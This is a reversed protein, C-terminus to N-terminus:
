VVNNVVCMKCFAWDGVGVIARGLMLKAKELCVSPKNCINPEGRYVYLYQTKLDIKIVVEGIRGVLARTEREHSDIKNQIVSVTGDKKNVESVIGRINSREVIMGPIIEDWTKIWDEQFRKDFPKGVRPLLLYEKDERVAETKKTADEDEVPSVTVVCPVQVVKAWHVLDSSINGKVHFKKEGVRALARQVVIPAPYTVTGPFSMLTVINRSLNFYVKEKKIYRTGFLTDLAYHVLTIYGEDYAKTQKPHVGVVVADHPLWWYFYTICDGPKVDSYSYVRRDKEKYVISEAMHSSRNYLIHYRREGIKERARRVIAEPSFKYVPHIRVILIDEKNLDFTFVEESVVQSKGYHVVSMVVQSPKAGARVDTCVAQHPLLRYTFQVLQGSKIDDRIKANERCIEKSAFPRKRRHDIYLPSLDFDESEPDMPRKYILEGKPQGTTAVDEENVDKLKAWHCFHASRHTLGFKTEGIRKQARDVVIEPENFDYGTYDHLKLKDQNLDISLTEEVIKRRSFIGPLAYHIVKLDAKKINRKPGNPDTKIGSVIGDHFFGRYKWSVVDGIWIKHLSDVEVKRGVFPSCVKRFWRPMYKMLLMTLLSIFTAFLVQIGPVPILKTLLLGGTQIVLLIGFKIWIDRKKRKVCTECASGDKLLKNLLRHERISKLLVIILMVVLVIDGAVPYKGIVFLDDVTLSFVKGLFSLATKLFDQIREFFGQAQLSGENGCVCWHALHECNCYLGSYKINERSLKEGRKIIEEPEHTKHRYKIVYIEDYQMHKVEVTKRIKISSDFPTSMFQILTLIAGSGDDNLPEVDKVIAHHSYFKIQKKGFNFLGKEGAVIIHDGKKLDFFTRLQKTESCYMCRLPLSATDSLQLQAFRSQAM